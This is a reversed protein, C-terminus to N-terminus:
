RTDRGRGVTERWAAYEDPSMPPLEEGDVSVYYTRLGPVFKREHDAIFPPLTGDRTVEIEECEMRVEIM